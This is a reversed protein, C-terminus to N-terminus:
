ADNGKTLRSTFRYRFRNNPATDGHDQFDLADLPEPMHDFWKFELELSQFGDANDGLPFELEVFDTGQAFPIEKMKKWRGDRWACLAARGKEAAMPVIRFQYGEWDPLDRGAFRILLNMWGPDGGEGAVLPEATKAMFCLNTGDRAVKCSVIDNRGWDNIYPGASAYGDHNRHRTDGLDDKFVPDVEKWDEERGDVEIKWPKSSEPPPRVGKFKRINSVMQYYYNDEFGGRMPECDRSYEISYQDIFWTDGPDITGDAFQRPKKGDYIFRQAVWENWGTIFIFEPDVKLAHDWQEQFYTGIMPNQEDPPPQKGDKHSRGTSNVPHSASAVAVQEPKGQDEHWGYAQPTKDIWPWKDKGDGFWKDPTKSWAWSRRITFFDLIEQPLEDPITMLLPKGKWRFWLEPYIKKQYFENYVKETTQQAKSNFLFSIQPTKGGKARIDRFVECLKMYHMPYTQANTVDFIVVDVGADALMQAHKAIVWEDDMLYYGFRPEGWWHFLGKKGWERKNEPQQMIDTINCPGQQEHGGLWLFYFIGVFKGERPPGCEEAEPLTRGLGDVAAWPECVM